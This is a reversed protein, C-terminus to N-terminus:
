LQVVKETSSCVNGIDEGSRRHLFPRVFFVISADATSQSLTLRERFSVVDTIFQGIIVLIASTIVAIALLMSNM